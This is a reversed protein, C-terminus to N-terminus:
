QSGLVPQPTHGIGTITALLFRPSFNINVGSLYLVACLFSAKWVVSSPRSGLVCIIGQTRLLSKQSFFRSFTRLVSPHFFFFIKLSGRLHFFDNVAKSWFCWPGSSWFFELPHFTLSELLWILSIIHVLLSFSMASVIRSLSNNCFGVLWVFDKM